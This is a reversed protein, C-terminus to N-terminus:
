GFGELCHRRRRAITSDGPLSCQRHPLALMPVPDARLRQFRDPRAAAGFDAVQRDGAGGVAGGGPGRGGSGYALPDLLLEVEQERRVFRTLQAARIAAFRSEASREGIVEIVPVPESLGRLLRHGLDRYAFWEGALRRTAAPIVVAGPPAEAQLRAALNPTEGVVGHERPDGTGVLEGVVVLGTAMGIRLELKGSAGDIMHGREVLALGCRIAREAEDEHAQPYGFYMLVGDGMFKAVFGGFKDVVEAVARHYAGLV